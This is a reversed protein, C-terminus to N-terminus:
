YEKPTWKKEFSSKRMDSQDEQKEPNLISKIERESFWFAQFAPSANLVEPQMGKEKEVARLTLPLQENWSMLTEWAKGKAGQNSLQKARAVSLDYGKQLERNTSALYEDASPYSQIGMGFVGLASLPLLEPDTKQIEMMDQVVMPVFRKAIEDSINLDAGGPGRGKLLATAFSVVPAEKSEVLRSVIDLRTIPKYGKGVRAVQGTTSSTVEGSLLQAGTRVYQQFGGWPDIRINGVRIKGFDPSTMETTVKAGALKAATVVTTGAGAFSLLAKLAEKRVFPDAKIYFMPNMVTLRSAMLRPSFLTTNLIVAADELKGLGGRGSAINVFNAIDDALKTDKYPNLGVRQAHQVLDDFVTARLRNLFGTYARSSERVGPIVNAFNAGMFREEAKELFPGIDTLQLRGQMLKYHPLAAIEESLAQYAKESGAYKFMKAYSSFFQRPKYAALFVGQRFPASLDYSAMLTRPLNLAGLVTTKIKQWTGMRGMVTEALDPGFVKSLIALQSRQPVGASKEAFLQALGERGHLSDEYTIAGKEYAKKVYDFVEDMESQAFQNRISELQVKPLAGYFAGREHLYGTEGGTRTARDKALGFKEALAETYLKQQEKRAVKPGRLAMIMKDVLVPREVPAPGKFPRYWSPANVGPTLSPKQIGKAALGGVGGLVGSLVAPIDKKTEGLTSLYPTVAMGPTTTMGMSMPVLRGGMGVGKEALGPPLGKLKNAAGERRLYKEVVDPKKLQEGFVGKTIKDLLMRVPLPVASQKIGSELNALEEQMNGGFTHAVQSATKSKGLSWDETGFNLKAPLAKAFKVGAEAGALSGRSPISPEKPKEGLVWLKSGETPSLRKRREEDLEALLEDATKQRTEPM